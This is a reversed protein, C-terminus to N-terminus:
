PLSVPHRFSKVNIKLVIEDAMKNLVVTPVHAVLVDFGPQVSGAGRRQGLRQGQPFSAESALLASAEEGTNQRLLALAFDDGVIESDARAVIVCHQLPDAAFAGSGNRKNCVSLAQRLAIVAIALKGFLFRM